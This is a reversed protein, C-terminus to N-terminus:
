FSKSSYVVVDLKLQDFPPFDDPLSFHSNGVYYDAPCNEEKTYHRGSCDFFWNAVGGSGLMMDTVFIDQGKHKVLWITGQYHIADANNSKSKKILEKLWPLNELPQECGCNMDDQIM